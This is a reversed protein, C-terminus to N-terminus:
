QGRPGEGPVRRGAIGFPPDGDVASVALTQEGALRLIANGRERFPQTDAKRQWQGQWHFYVAIDPGDVMVRDIMLDLGIRDYVAFDREVGTEVQRLRELPMLMERFAAFDKNTYAQRIKEVTADIKRIRAADAPNINSPKSCALGALGVLGVIGAWVALRRRQNLMRVLM